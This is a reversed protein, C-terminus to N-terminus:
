HIAITYDNDVRRIYFRKHGSYLWLTSHSEICRLQIITIEGDFTIDNIGAISGYCVIARM